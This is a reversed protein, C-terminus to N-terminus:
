CTSGAPLIQFVNFPPPTARIGGAPTCTAAQGVIATLVARNSFRNKLSNYNRGSADVFLWGGAAKNGYVMKTGQYHQLTWFCVNFDPCTTDARASGPAILAGVALAIAMTVAALDVLIDM